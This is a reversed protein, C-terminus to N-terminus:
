MNKVVYSIINILTDIKDTIFIVVAVMDKYPFMWGRLNEWEVEMYKGKGFGKECMYMFKEFIKKTIDTLTTKVDEEKYEKGSIENIKEINVYSRKVNGQYDGIGFGVLAPINLADEPNMDAILKLAFEEMKEVTGLMFTEKDLKFAYVHIYSDKERWIIELHKVELNPMRVVEGMNEFTWFLSRTAYLFRENLSDDYAKYAPIDGNELIIAAWRAGYKEVMLDVIAKYRGIDM